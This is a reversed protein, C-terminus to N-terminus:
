DFRKIELKKLADIVVIIDERCNDAALPHIAKDSPWVPGFLYV